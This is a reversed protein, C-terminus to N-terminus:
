NAQAASHWTVLEFAQCAQQIMQETILVEQGNEDIVASYHTVAREAHVTASPNSTQTPM